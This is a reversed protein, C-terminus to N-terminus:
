NDDIVQSQTNHFSKRHWASFAAHNPFIIEESGREDRDLEDAHAFDWRHSSFRQFPQSPPANSLVGNFRPTSPVPFSISEFVVSGNPTLFSLFILNLDLLVHAASGALQIARLGAGARKVDSNRGLWFFTKRLSTAVRDSL